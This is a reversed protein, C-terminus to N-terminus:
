RRHKAQGPLKAPLDVKDDALVDMCIGAVRAYALLVLLSPEREGREFESIKARSLVGQLGLRNVIEAQTNGLAERIRLLKEGLRGPKARAARGMLAARRISYPGCVEEQM